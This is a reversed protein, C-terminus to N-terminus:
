SRIEVYTTYHHKVLQRRCCSSYFVVVVESAPQSTGKAESAPLSSPLSPSPSVTLDCHRCLARRRGQTRCLSHALSVPSDSRRLESVDTLALPSLPPSFLTVTLLLLFVSSLLPVNM